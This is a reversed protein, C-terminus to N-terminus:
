MFDKVKSFELNGQKHYGAIRLWPLMNLLDPKKKTTAKKFLFFGCVLVWWFVLLM